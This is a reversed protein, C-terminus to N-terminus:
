AGKERKVCILSTVWPIKVIRRKGLIKIATKTVATNFTDILVDINTDDVDFMSLLAFKGGIMPQFNEAVKPDKLKELDFKIRTHSHKHIKKLRLRFNKM